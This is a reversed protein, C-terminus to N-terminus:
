SGMKRYLETVQAVVEKHSPSDRDFYAPNARLAKIQGEIRDRSTHAPAAGRRPTEAEANQGRAAIASLLRMRNVTARDGAQYEKSQRV